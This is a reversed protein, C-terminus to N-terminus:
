KRGLKWIYLDIENEFTFITKGNSNHFWKRGSNAMSIRKSHNVPDSFTISKGTMLESMHKKQKDSVVRGRHKNGIKIKTEETHKKGTMGGIYDKKMKLGSNWSLKNKGGLSSNKYHNEWDDKTFNKFRLRNKESIIKRSEESIVNGIMRQRGYECLDEKLKKYENSSKTIITKLENNGHIMRWIACILGRCNPYIKVLLKHCIFHERATLAVLNTHENTGGLCKPIIHHVEFYGIMDKKLKKKTSFEYRMKANNIIKDYIKLYNM